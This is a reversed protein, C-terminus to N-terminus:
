MDASYPPEIEAIRSLVGPVEPAAQVISSPVGIVL